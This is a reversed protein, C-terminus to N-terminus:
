FLALQRTEGLHDLAGHQRLLELVPKTLRARERLDEISAFPGDARSEVIHAAATRGLGPLAEFPMLLAGPAVVAFRDALSDELSVPQFSFGRLLMEGMVELVASRAKDKPTAENGLADLRGQEQRVAALGGLAPEPLFDDRRLTFYVAYYEVPFHMKFWAIRWGMTVYAAAHAKPFLYTIRDCSQIYWAPVGAARMAQREGDSLARGRRVHESIQFADAPPMGRRILYTMVDDRTAIVESLTAVRDRILADANNAWVNTGHSLGSIRVLEGFTKPRTDALMRRVFPTGFEPLGVTGVASGLQEESLGLTETGSFLGMTDPDQFPVEDLPQGTLETLLRLTTPDEHGLLDLKLLRGEIAHYDFHTTRVDTMAADAPRQVPTYHHIDDGDPVLMLGGPHQGTTRKVGTLGLVLRDVEVALPTRGTERAWAKVLGFATREAVTAITGARFVQGAGFLEETYRHIQGQYDGSFNLDIDPVKEGHFGLFTEFPIDQGDGVLRTGCAPCDRPPLDFGSSVPGDQDEARRSWRCHPCRYHPPLPNVETIDLYTAVLSSGVSGRSGVLYGDEITKKALRHATYYVSAYGHELIASIERELREAVFPPVPDGFLSRAREWPLASITPEAEPLRPSHLGEPIPELPLLEQLLARTSHVVVQSAREAGLFAMEQLLEGTTRLHLAGRRAHVDTKATVALIDRLVADEPMLYHVDSAAVVPRGCREGVAVVDALVQEVAESDGLWGEDAWDQVCAPPVVELFDYRAAVPGLDEAPRGQLLLSTVEGDIAPAGLLWDQRHAALVSAPMRPVRHFDVLHSDSVARYLAVMGDAHRPYVLVPYPRGAAVPIPAPETLGADALATGAPLALLALALQGCAEADALARHHQDLPIKLERCLPELGYQRQVPLVARALALTDLLPWPGHGPELGPALFGYDFGANHAVLVAGACFARFEEWVEAAAPAEALDEPRIGTIAQSAALMPRREPRILRSFRGAVEGHEWRVAGVEIIDQTRPSLGTTEIDLAVLPWDRWPGPPVPGTLVPVADDVVHAELGYVVRIGHRRAQDAAEPFAQVVGHDTVAIAPHGLAAARAVLSSVDALGDMASMKSHAHWEIRPVEAGDDAPPSPRVELRRVKMVPEGARDVDVAGEARVWVGVEFPSAPADDDRGFYLRLALSSSLDTLGMLLLRQGERLLREERSFIKGEVCVVGPAGATAAAESLPIPDGEPAGGYRPPGPAAPPLVVTSPAEAPPAVVELALPPLDGVLQRLRGEGGWQEWMAEGGSGSVTLVVSGDAAERVGQHDVLGRPLVARVRDSLSETSPLVTFRVGARLSEALARAALEALVPTWGDGVRVTADVDALDHNWAVAEVSVLGPHSALFRSWPTDAPM